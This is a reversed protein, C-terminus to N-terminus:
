DGGPDLQREVEDRTLPLDDPSEYLEGDDGQVRADLREALDLMKTLTPRDPNKTLVDGEFWDFWAHPDVRDGFAFFADGNEPMAFLDEDSAALAIWEDHTIPADENEAWYEARAIHLDYGLDSSGEIRRRPSRLCGTNV